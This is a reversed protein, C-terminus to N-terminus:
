DFTSVEPSLVVQSKIFLGVFLCVIAPLVLLLESPPYADGPEGRCSGEGQSAGLFTSRRRDTVVVAQRCCLVVVGPLPPGWTGM